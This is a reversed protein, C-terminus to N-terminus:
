QLIPTSIWSQGPNFSSGSRDAMVRSFTLFASATITTSAASWSRLRLKGVAQNAALLLADMQEDQYGIYNLDGNSGFFDYLDTVTFM